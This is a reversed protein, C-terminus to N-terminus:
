ASGRFRLFAVRTDGYVREELKEYGDPVAITEDEAAEAIVLADRNLWGGDRM